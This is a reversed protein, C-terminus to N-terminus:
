ALCYVHKHCEKQSCQHCAKGLTTIKPISHVVYVSAGVVRGVAVVRSSSSSMVGVGRHSVRVAIDVVRHAGRVQVSTFQRIDGVPLLIPFSVAIGGRNHIGGKHIGGSMVVGVGRRGMRVAIDVVRHAGRVQVSTFQRIDGVPLLIPFSVAIGGRNHIGGKHIGGSM